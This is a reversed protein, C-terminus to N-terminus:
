SKSLALRIDLTFNDDIAKDGLNDFFSNSGYRVNFKSRDIIIRASLTNPNKNAVFSIERTTGKITIMGTVMAKGDVFEAEETIELKATPYKVVAFFDDSNLHGVLKQNYTEDEIDLNKITSMDIVFSGKQLKNDMMEIDASKLQITGNHEGGVKKGLWQISSKEVDIKVEQAALQGFTFALIM